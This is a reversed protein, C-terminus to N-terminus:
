ERHSATAVHMQKNLSRGQQAEARGFDGAVSAASDESLINDSGIVRHQSGTSNPARNAFFLRKSGAFIPNTPQCHSRGIYCHDFSNLM